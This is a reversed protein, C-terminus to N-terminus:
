GLHSVGEALAVWFALTAGIALLLSWNMRTAASGPISRIDQANHLLAM